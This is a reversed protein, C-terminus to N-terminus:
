PCGPTWPAGPFVEELLAFLAPDYARLAERTSVANHIGNPPDARQNTDFFSQAGEAFYEDTNTAAYTNSWRGATRAATFARALRDSFDPIAFVVGLNFIGHALEHVLINEGRYRDIRDCRLNEEACSTAPRSVTGGLGRARANWDTDPYERQLDAHEPIDLTREDRAMVAVRAGRAIMEDRVDTRRSTMFRTIRCAARMAVESTRASALVPVGDASLMQRYFPPYGEAGTLATIPDECPGTRIVVDPAPVDRVFVDALPVDDRGADTAIPPPAVTGCASLLVALASTHRLM